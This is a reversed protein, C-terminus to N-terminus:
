NGRAGALSMRQHDIKRREQRLKELAAQLDQTKLAVAKPRPSGKPADKPMAPQSYYWGRKEYLGKVTANGESRAGRSRTGKSVGGRSTDLEKSGAPSTDM